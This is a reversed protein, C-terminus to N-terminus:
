VPYSIISKFNWIQRASVRVANDIHFEDHERNKDSPKIGFRPVVPYFICFQVWCIMIRGDGSCQLNWKHVSVSRSNSVIEPWRPIRPWQWIKATDMTWEINFIKASKKSQVFMSRYIHREKIRDGSRIQIVSYNPRMVVGLLRGNRENYCNDHRPGLDQFKHIEVIRPVSQDSYCKDNRPM